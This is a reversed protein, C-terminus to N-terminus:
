NVIKKGVPLHKKLLEVLENKNFPKSLHAIFGKQLFVQKEHSMTYGTVAIMPVDKYGEIERIIQAVELGNMGGGLNIDMLIASYYTSNILELASEANKAYDVNCLDKLYHVIVEKNIENDEVLLITQKESNNKEFIDSLVEIEDECEVAIDKLCDACPIKIIFETGIGLTSTFSIEGNMLTMLKQSINLGLGTGEYRRSIGESVQRFEQFIVAKDEDSIGIGTDSIKLMGWCKGPESVHDIVVEIKGKNTFKIANDLINNMVTFILREDALINIGEERIDLIFELGKQRATEAFPTHFYKIYKDLSLVEIDAQLEHTELQAYQLISNLTTTLRKASKTIRDLMEIQEPEQLSESLFQTFGLIGVLPTRFEHSMNGILISKLKSSEEAKDIAIRLEEELKKKESIDEKFAVYNTIEGNKNKVPSISISEWFLAGNKKKNLFEGHWEHGHSIYSWLEDYVSNPTLGSKLLRPTNCIVDYFDYGTVETFKSNVYEITGNKDTIVIMMPSQEIARSLKRLTDENEKSTTVDTSICLISPKVSNAFTFPIKVTQFFRKNGKPDISEELYTIPKNQSIVKYDEEKFREIKSPSKVFHADTNGIISKIPIKNYEAFAKNALIYKGDIDKAFIFHPVADIIQRLRSKSLKLAEESKKADTIDNIVGRLGVTKGDVKIPVSSIFVNFITGDKKVALYESSGSEQNSILKNIRQKAYEHMEPVIFDVINYNLVDSSKGGGFTEFTKKNAYIIKGNLDTEFIPQPLEEVMQMYKKHSNLLERETKRRETIDHFQIITKRKGIEDMIHNYCTELIKQEGNNSEFLFEFEIEPEKELIDEKFVENLKKGLIDDMGLMVIQLMRKNAYTITMKEDILIIGSHSIEVITKFKEESERVAIGAVKNQTVDKAIGCLGWIKGSDDKVPTKILNFTYPIGNVLKSHEEAITEGNLVRSDIELVKDSVDDGFIEKDTKGIIEDVTMKYLKEIRCNIYRYKLDADKLYISDVTSNCIAELHRSKEDYKQLLRFSCIASQICLEVERLNAPTHIFEFSHLNNHTEADISYFIYPIDFRAINEVGELGHEVLLIDPTILNSCNEFEHLSVTEGILKYGLQNITRILENKTERSKGVICIKPKATASLINKNM